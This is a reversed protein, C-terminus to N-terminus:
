KAPLPDVAQGAPSTWVFADTDKKKLDKLFANAAAQSEFPGVLLRNTQGWPTTWVKKAKFLDASARSMKRWDFALAAKDRGAALQIWIRSPHSPTAAKPKESGASKGAAKLTKESAPTEVAASRRTGAPAGPLPGREDEVAVKAKPRTPVIKGIDVAAVASRAEDEPPRFDSFADALRLRVPTPAAAPAIAAAPASSGTAPASTTVPARAVTALDFSGSATPAPTPTSVPGSGPQVRPPIASAASAPLPSM